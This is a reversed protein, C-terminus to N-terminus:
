WAYQHHRLNMQFFLIPDKLNNAFFLSIRRLKESDNSINITLVGKLTEKNPPPVSTGEKKRLSPPSTKPNEILFISIYGYSIQRWKIIM